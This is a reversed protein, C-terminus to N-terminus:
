AIDKLMAKVEQRDLFGEGNPDYKAFFENVYAKVAGETICNNSKPANIALIPNITVTAKRKKQRRTANDNIFCQGM